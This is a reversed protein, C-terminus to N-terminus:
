NERSTSLPRWDTTPKNYLLVLSYLQAGLQQKLGLQNSSTAVLLETERDLGLDGVARELRILQADEDAVDGLASWDRLLFTSTRIQTQRAIPRVTV